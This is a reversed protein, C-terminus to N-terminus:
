RALAAHDMKSQAILGVQAGLAVALTEIATYDQVGGVVFGCGSSRRPSRKRLWLGPAPEWNPRIRFITQLSHCEDCGISAESAYLNTDTYFEAEYRHLAEYRPVGEPTGCLSRFLSGAKAAAM